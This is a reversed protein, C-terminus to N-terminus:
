NHMKITLPVIHSFSDFKAPGRLAITLVKGRHMIKSLKQVVSLTSQIPEHWHGTTACKLFKLLNLNIIM